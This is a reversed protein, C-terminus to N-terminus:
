VGKESDEYLLSVGGGDQGVVLGAALAHPAGPARDSEQRDAETVALHREAEAQRWARQQQIFDQGPLPKQEFRDNWGFCRELSCFWDDTQDTKSITPVPHPSMRVLVSDGRQVEQRQKGDFCVWATCRADEPIRLEIEAYDPLVVPRRLGLLTPNCHIRSCFRLFLPNPRFLYRQKVNSGPVLDLVQVAKTSFSGYRASKAGPSDSVFSLVTSLIVM